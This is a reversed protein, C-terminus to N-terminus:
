SSGATAAHDPPASSAVGPDPTQSSISDNGTSNLGSAVSPSNPSSNSDLSPIKELSAQMNIKIRNHINVYEDTEDLIEEQLLEEIVDEMTIVGVVEENSPFEPIPGNEIDLICYSCGRHRKKFPPITPQSKRSNTKTQRDSENKTRSEQSDQLEVNTDLDQIVTAPGAGINDSSKLLLNTPM